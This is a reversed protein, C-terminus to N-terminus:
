TFSAHMCQSPPPTNPPSTPRVCMPALFNYASGIGGYAGYQLGLAVMQDQGNYIVQGPQMRPLLRSMKFLDYRHHVLFLTHTTTPTPPLFARDSLLDPGSEWRGVLTDSQSCM